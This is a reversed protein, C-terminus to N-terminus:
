ENVKEAVAPGNIPSEHLPICYRNNFDCALFSERKKKARKKNRFTPEAGKSGLWVMGEDAKKQKWAM